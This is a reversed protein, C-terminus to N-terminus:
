GSFQFTQGHHPCELFPPVIQFAAKESHYGVMSGKQPHELGGFGARPQDFPCSNVKVTSYLFPFYLVM